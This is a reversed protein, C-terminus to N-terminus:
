PLQLKLLTAPDIYATQWRVSLHLHPGTARGSGGSMAVIQGKAVRQDAKVNIESLHMYMTLLGQGHDIVLFGGEFFLDGALIVEGGNMARVPTGTSARYDLGQHVSQLKGNFTRQTGFNETTANDIPAVFSGSWLRDKSVHDFAERKLEQEQKIRALTEADPELFRKPVSLTVRRYAARDITVAHGSSSHAGNALVANLTLQHRGATTDLEVGALGYWTGSPADFDFSIRRGQWLGSLSKLSKEPKVRFLCPSGNVLKAPEWSLNLPQAVSAADVKLAPQPWNNPAPMLLFLALLSSSQVIALLKM